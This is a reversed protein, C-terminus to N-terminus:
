DPSCRRKRTTGTEILGACCWARYEFIEKRGAGSQSTTDGPNFGPAIITNGRRLCSLLIIM